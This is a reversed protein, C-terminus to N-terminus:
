RVHVDLQQDELVRLLEVLTDAVRDVREDVRWRVDLRRGGIRGGDLGGRGGRTDTDTHQCGGGDRQGASM